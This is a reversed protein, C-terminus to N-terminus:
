IANSVLIVLSDLMFFAKMVKVLSDLLQNNRVLSNWEMDLLMDISDRLSPCRDPNYVQSGLDGSHTLHYKKYNVDKIM